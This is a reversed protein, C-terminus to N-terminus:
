RRRFCRPRSADLPTWTGRSPTWASPCSTPTRGRHSVSRRCWVAQSTIEYALPFNVVPQVAVRREGLARRTTGLAHFSDFPHNRPSENMTWCHEGPTVETAPRATPQRSCRQAVTQKEGDTANTRLNHKSGRLANGQFCYTVADGRQPRLRCLRWSADVM